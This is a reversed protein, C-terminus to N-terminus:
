PNGSLIAYNEPSSNEAASQLEAPSDAIRRGNIVDMVFFGFM